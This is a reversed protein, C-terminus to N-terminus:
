AECGLVRLLGTMVIERLFAISCPQTMPAPTM